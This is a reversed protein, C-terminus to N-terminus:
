RMLRTSSLLAELEAARTVPQRCAFRECVYAAARGDLPTRGELLPSAARTRRRRRRRARPAPSLRRARRAGAREHRQASSRSRACRRSTSTSRRCSTASPRRTAGRSSASSRAARRRRAGRLAGRRDARRAAAPRVRREVRGVPDPQGRAGQPARRAARPRELDSLLRRARPRRLARDITDATARAAHFWRPEFTAEYLTILAELLFAHDELYANLKAEGANYTRLLRGDADRM